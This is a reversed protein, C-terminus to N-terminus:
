SITKNSQQSDQKRAYSENRVRLDVSGSRYNKRIYVHEFELSSLFLVASKGPNPHDKYHNKFFNFSPTFYEILMAVLQRDVNNESRHLSSKFYDLEFIGLRGTPKVFFSEVTVHTFSHDKFDIRNIKM